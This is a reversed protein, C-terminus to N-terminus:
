RISRVTNRQHGLGTIEAEMVDGPALFVNWHAGNGAPSGTLLLDGPRLTSTTSAYAILRPIDFIMDKTSEDQRVVGNHRLTIRVDSPDGVFGAPVLFPGTPLFTDANKATFWDTGIAKLDPRYLRDRTTIDNCITYGAVYSWADKPAINRGERCIVLALELEWDHQEGLEPLMVEDYPGCIARPSGLFIYPVGNRAREDMMKEADARAEEPTAGHVSVKEAAVLDEVHRRYNAGSQLIQGPEIPAHVRLDALDHWTGDPTQPEEALAALRPLVGDWDEVLARVSAAVDSLDRVRTATVLGPFPDGGYRSFTGLAFPGAHLPLRDPM